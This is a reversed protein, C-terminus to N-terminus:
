RIEWRSEYYFPRSGYNKGSDKGVIRVSYGKVALVSQGSGNSIIASPVDLIVTMGAYVKVPEGTNNVIFIPVYEKEEFINICSNLILFAFTFVWIIKYRKM